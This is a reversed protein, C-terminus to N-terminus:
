GSASEDTFQDSLIKMADLAKDMSFNYFEAIINILEPDSGKPWNTFRKRKSILNLYYKYNSYNDIRSMNNVHNAILITDQFLSFFRNTLYQSYDKTVEIEKHDNISNIFTFPSTTAM